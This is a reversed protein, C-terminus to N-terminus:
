ISLTGLAASFEQREKQVETRLSVGELMERQTVSCNGLCTVLFLPGM